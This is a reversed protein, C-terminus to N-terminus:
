NDRSPVAGFRSKALSSTRAFADCAEVYATGARHRISAVFRTFTEEPIVAEVKGISLWYEESQETEVECWYLSSTAAARSGKGLKGLRKDDSATQREATDDLFANINKLAPHRRAINAATVKGPLFGTGEPLEMNFKPFNESPLRFAILLKM